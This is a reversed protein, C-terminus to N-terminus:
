TILQRHCQRYHYYISPSLSCGPLMYLVRTYRCVTNNRGDDSIVLRPQGDVVAISEVWWWVVNNNVESHSSFFYLRLVYWLVDLSLYQDNCHRWLPRSPTEFWWGWWQKSLRKNLRLDFFVDFSRTVPRHAPFEATVPSNGAFIALLASFTEM